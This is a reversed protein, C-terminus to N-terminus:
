FTCLARLRTNGVPSGKRIPITRMDATLGCTDVLRLVGIVGGLYEADIFNDKVDALPLMRGTSLFYRFAKLRVINELTDGLRANKGAGGEVEDTLVSTDSITQVISLAEAM